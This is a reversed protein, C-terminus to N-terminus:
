VIRLNDKGTIAKETEIELDRFEANIKKIGESCQNQTLTQKELQGLVNFLQNQTDVLTNHNISVKDLLDGKVGEILGLVEKFAKSSTDKHANFNNQMVEYGNALDEIDVWNRYMEARRIKTTATKDDSFDEYNLNKHYRLLFSTFDLTLNTDDETGSDIHAELNMKKIIQSDPRFRAYM